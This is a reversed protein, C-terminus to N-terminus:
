PTGGLSESSKLEAQLRLAESVYSRINGQEQLQQPSLAAFRKQLADIEAMVQARPRTSATSPAAAPAAKKALAAAVAAQAKPLGRGVLAERAGAVNTRTTKQASRNALHGVIGLAGPGLVAGAPGGLAAGLGGGMTTAMFTPVGGRMPDFKGINRAINAKMGPAAVRDIAALQAPTLRMMKTKKENDALKRFQDRLAHEEGAQTYKAEGARKAKREMSDLLESNKLRQFLGRAQELAAVGAKSDGALTDAPKLNTLYDDYQTQIIKALRQDAADTSKKADNILQRVKDADSLSLAKNAKIREALIDSAEKLKPPLKGLNEKDAVRQMMTVVRQTSEPRIVVNADEAAKYALTKAASLEATTPVADQTPKAAPAPKAAQPKPARAPVRAAAAGGLLSSAAQAAPDGGAEAVAAGSAGGAAGTLAPRMGGAGLLGGPAGASAGYLVRAIGNDASPQTVQGGGLAQSGQDMKKAFWDGTLPLQTRDPPKYFEDADALTGKRALSRGAGYAMGGLDVVNQATDAFMGAVNAVGRNFGAPISKITGVPDDAAGQVANSLGNDRMAALTENSPARGGRGLGLPAPPAAIPAAAPASADFQDFVNGAAVPPPKAVDFQDFVNPM